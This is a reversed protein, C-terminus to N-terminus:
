AQGEAILTLLTRDSPFLGPPEQQLVWTAGGEMSVAGMKSYRLLLVMMNKQTEIKLGMLLSITAPSIDALIGRYYSFDKDVRSTANRIM